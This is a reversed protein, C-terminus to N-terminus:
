SEMKDSGQTSSTKAGHIIQELRFLCDKPLPQSNYDSKNIWWIREEQVCGMQDALDKNQPYYLAPCKTCIKMIREPM